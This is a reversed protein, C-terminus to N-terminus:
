KKIYPLVAPEGVGKAELLLEKCLLRMEKLTEQHIENDVLNINEVPDADLDFLEEYIPEEGEISATRNAQYLAAREETMAYAVKGKPPIGHENKFYRIYKWKGERVSEIRPNGFWNSWLNEGFVAKRWDSTEGSMLKQLPLGQMSGPMELGAWTLISPAIDLTQVFKTERRAQHSSPLSPDYIIYPVKLCAEYNLAKGGLGWEGEM